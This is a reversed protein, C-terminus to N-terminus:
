MSLFSGLLVRFYPFCRSVRGRIVMNRLLVNSSEDRPAGNMSGYVKVAADDYGHAILQFMCNLADQNYRRYPEDLVHKLV